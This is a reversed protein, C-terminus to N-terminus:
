RAKGSREKKRERLVKKFSITAELAYDALDKSPLPEPSSTQVSVGLFNNNKEIEALKKLTEEFEGVEKNENDEM